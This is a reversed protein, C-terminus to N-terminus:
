RKITGQLNCFQKWKRSLLPYISKICIHIVNAMSHFNSLIQPLLGRIVSVCVGEKFGKGEASAIENCGVPPWNCLISDYSVNGIPYKKGKNM